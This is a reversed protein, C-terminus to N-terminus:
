EWEITAPPKSTVDLVVRNVGACENTIRKSIREILEFPLRGWDATMADTSTIPRLVIPNGYTRADGDVGTSHVDALLIVPFQWITRELGAAALEQRAILDAARLTDLRERTVEGVVRISLGPGPFPQRWVMAAPLGLAEGVMRVGPKFLLRVPEILKFQLDAPLGGVNHHSKISPSEVVDPFITGQALFDIQKAASIERAADEFVRIFTAGVIKRKQEPDTVGALADLFRDAEDRYVLEVGTAAVFDQRVQEIEGARLLGHNVFVCVLQSGIARQLLAATVASDVGGSLACLVRGDGVTQKIQAVQAEIFSLAAANDNINVPTEM